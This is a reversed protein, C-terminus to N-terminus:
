IGEKMSNDPVIQPFRITFGTGEINQQSVVISGQLRESVLKLVINMGLGTGGRGRRTTYFQDFLRRYEEESLGRGNDQYNMVVEGDEENYSIRILGDERGEFGHTISNFVLNNLIQTLAGPYTDVMIVGNSEVEIRHKGDKLQYKLSLIIDNIYSSLEFERREDIQQDVAVQKLSNLIRAAQDLNNQIIRSSEEADILYRELNDQTLIQEDWEQYLRQTRENLFSAATVGISLPTNIEHAVGSVLSGLASMKESLLLQDRASRLTEITDEHAKTRKKVKSELDDNMRQLADERNLVTEIMDNIAHALSDIEKVPFQERILVPTGDTFEQTRESIRTLPIVICRRVMFLIFPVVVVIAVAVVVLIVRYVYRTNLVTENPDKQLLGGILWLLLLPFVILISALILQLTALRFPTKSSVRRNDFFFPALM